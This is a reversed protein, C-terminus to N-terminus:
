DKTEETGVNVDTHSGLTKLSTHWGSNLPPSPTHKNQLTHSSYGFLPSGAHIQILCSCFPSLTLVIEWKIGQFTKTSRM